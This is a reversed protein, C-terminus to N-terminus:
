SFKSAVDETESEVLQDESEPIQPLAPLKSSRVPENAAAASTTSRAPSVYTISAQGPSSLPSSGFFAASPKLSSFIAKKPTQHVPRGEAIAEAQRVVDGQDVGSSFTDLEEDDTDLEPFTRAPAARCSAWKHKSDWELSAAAAQPDRVFLPGTEGGLTSNSLHVLAQLRTLDDTFDKVQTLEKPGGPGVEQLIAISLLIGLLIRDLGSFANWQQPTLAACWKGLGNALLNNRTQITLPKPGFTKGDQFGYWWAPHRM